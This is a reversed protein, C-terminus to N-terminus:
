VCLHVICGGMIEEFFDSLFRGLLRRVLILGFLESFPVLVLEPIQFSIPNARPIPV